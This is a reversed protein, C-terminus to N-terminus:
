CFAQKPTMWKYVDNLYLQKLVPSFFNSSWTSKIGSITWMKCFAQKPTIAGLSTDNMYLGTWFMCM